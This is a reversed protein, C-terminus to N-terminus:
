KINEMNNLFMLIPQSMRLYMKLKLSAVAISFTLSLWTTAIKKM